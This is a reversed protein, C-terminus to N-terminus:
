HYDLNLVKCCPSKFQPSHKRPYLTCILNVLPPLAVTGRGGKEDSSCLIKDFGSSHLLLNGFVFYIMLNSHLAYTYFRGTRFINIEFLFSKSKGPPM